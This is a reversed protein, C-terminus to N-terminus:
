ERCWKFTEALAAPGREVLPAIAEHARQRYEIWPMGADAEVPSAICGEVCGSMEFEMQPIPFSMSSLYSAPAFLKM